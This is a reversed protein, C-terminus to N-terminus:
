AEQPAGLLERLKVAVEVILLVAGVPMAAYVWYRPIQMGPLLARGLRGFVVGFGYWGVTGVLVGVLVHIATKAIRRARPPLLELVFGIVVHDGHRYAIPIGLFVVWTFIVRILEDSWRYTISFFYRLVISYLVLLTMVGCATIAARDVTKRFPGVTLTKM